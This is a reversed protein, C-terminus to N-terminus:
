YALLQFHQTDLLATESTLHLLFTDSVCSSIIEDEYGLESPHIQPQHRNRMGENRKKEMKYYQKKFKKLSKNM